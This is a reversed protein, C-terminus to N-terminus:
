LEPAIEERPTDWPLVRKGSLDDPFAPVLEIIRPLEHDALLARLHAIVDARAIPAGAIVAKIVGLYGVGEALSVRCARVGPLALIANEIAVPDVKTGGINLLPRIRGLLTLNGDADLCGRDGSRYAGDVFVAANDDAVYGAPMGARSIEVEGEEGPPLLCGESDIIRFTVGELPTMLESGGVPAVAMIGAESCGYIQRVTVGSRERLEAAIEPELSAGGSACVALSALPTLDSGSRVLLEFMAPSGIVVDIENECIAELFTSPKFARILLITAGNLLPLLLSCSLGGATYYPAVSAVLSSHTVGLAKSTAANGEVVLQHSRDILKPVGTSGSSAVYYAPATGTVPEVPSAGRSTRPQERVTQADIELVQAPTVLDSLDGWPARPARKTLVGRVPLRDLIRRLQPARWGTNLPLMAAGRASVAVLCAAFELCNDMWSAVVEGRSLALQEDLLDELLAM